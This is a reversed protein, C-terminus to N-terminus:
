LRRLVSATPRMLGPRDSTELSGMWETGEQREERGSTGLLGSRALTGTIGLLALRALCEEGELQALLVLPGSPDQERSEEEEPPDLLDLPDRQDSSEGTEEREGDVTPLPDALGAPTAQTGRSAKRARTESPDPLDM